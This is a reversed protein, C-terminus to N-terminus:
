DAFTVFPICLDFRTMLFRIRTNPQAQEDYSLPSVFDCASGSVTRSEIKTPYGLQFPVQSNILGRAPEFGAGM